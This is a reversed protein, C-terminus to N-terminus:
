AASQLEDLGFWRRAPREFFQAKERILGILWLQDEELVCWRGAALAYAVVTVVGALGLEVYSRGPLWTERCIWVAAAVLVGAAIPRIAVQRLYPVFPYELQRCLLFPTIGGRNLTMIIASAVAAQLLNAHQVFYYILALSVISEGLLIWSFLRHKALGYLMSSSNFHSADALMTGILFAPLLPASMAAFEPTLWVRFLAHGYVSLFIAAPMFVVLSYRNAQIGLRILADRRRHAVLEATRATTILGVRQVLDMVSQILNLPLAYYGVFRTPLTHGIAVRPGQILLSWGMSSPVTHISFGFLKRASARNVDALSWRFQPFVRRFARWSLVGQLVTAGVVVTVLAKLSFGLLLVALVGVVRAVNSTMAIRSSLDFRQVAELCSAVCQFPLSAAFGAGAMVAMYVFANHLGPSIMFLRPSIPAFVLTLLLLVGASLLLYLFATNLTRNLEQDDGTASDHAVFKVVASKVGLDLLGYYGVISFVLAWVGYAEDGLRRIMMPSVFFAMAVNAIAAAWSWLTNAIFGPRNRTATTSRM